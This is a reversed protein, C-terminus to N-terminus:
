GIIYYEITPSFPPKHKIAQIFWFKLEKYNNYTKTTKHLFEQKETVKKKNKRNKKLVTPFHKSKVEIICWPYESQYRFGGWFNIQFMTKIRKSYIGCHKNLSNFIAVLKSSKEVRLKNRVKSHVISYTLFNYEMGRLSVVAKFLQTIKELM